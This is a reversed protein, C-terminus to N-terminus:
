SRSRLLRKVKLLSTSTWEGIGMFHQNEDYLRVCEAREGNSLHSLTKGHRLDGAEAENLLLKPLDSVARDVPLLASLLEDSGMSELEDMSYMEDESFGATYCRHLRTVHAGVGLADGIDEMLNRIYTGKSCTVTLSLSQGDWQNFLLERIHIERAPRPIDIGARAYRYLPKGQHKLASFMSPVQSIKGIFQTLVAQIAEDSFTFPHEARAIEEGMADGTNTKVGLLATVEYCKDADLLFQCCKTAEGFCIPLMGTALPDLSGTHGAKMAHFLRKVQQLVANSTLNIRKNVLLLGDINQKNSTKSVMKELNM